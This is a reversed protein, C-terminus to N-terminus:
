LLTVCSMIDPNDVEFTSICKIFGRRVRLTSTTPELGTLPWGYNGEAVFMVM